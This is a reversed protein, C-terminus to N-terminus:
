ENPTSANKQLGIDITALAEFKLDLVAVPRGYLYGQGHRCGLWRLQAAASADEIGEAIVSAGIADAMQVIARVIAADADSKSLNAVFAKDVKLEDIDLRCLYALNSYGTGFDDIALSVGIRKLAQFVDLGGSPADLFVSETIELKLGSPDCANEALARAIQELLVGRHIQVASVNVAVTGRFGSRQWNALQECASALAWAGLEVIKGSEEALPIFEVPSICGLVPHQWRMLAEFGVVAGSDLDVQPQYHLSLGKTRTAHRLGDLIALRRSAGTDLQAKYRCFTNRGRSKAALAASEARYLLTSFDGGDEPYSCCGVSATLPLEKNAILFPMEFVDLLAQARGNTSAQTVVLFGDGDHRALHEGQSLHSRLREAIAVLALDAMAHGHAENVLKFHDIDILLLTYNSWSNTEPLGALSKGHPLGTLHDHRSAHEAQARAVKIATLDSFTAVYHTVEGSKPDRVAIISEWMPCIEGSKNRNWIEGQWAGDRLVAEWLRRYFKADHRGSKLLGLDRGLLEAAAYGSIATFAPNTARIRGDTGAIIIGDHSNEFVVGSLRQQEQAVRFREINQIIGILRLPRGTADRKAVHGDVRYWLYAGSAHLSRYEIQIDTRRGDALERYSVHVRERDADHIRSLRGALSLDMGGPSAHGFIAAYSDSVEAAGSLADVEFIGIATAKLATELRQKHRELEQRAHALDTVERAVVLLGDREGRDSFFPKRVVDFCRMASNEGHSEYGRLDSGQRWAEEDSRQCEYLRARSGPHRAAIDANTLGRHDGEPLGLMDAALANHHLWRGHGSKWCIADPLSEVVRQLLYQQERAAHTLNRETVDIGIRWLQGSTERRTSAMVSWAVTRRRGDRTVLLSEENRPTIGRLLMELTREVFSNLDPHLYHASDPDRMVEERTYGSVRECERNWFVIRNGPAIADVMIPAHDLIKDLQKSTPMNM